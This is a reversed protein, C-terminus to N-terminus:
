NPQETGDFGFERTAKAKEIDKESAKYFQKYDAFYQTHGSTYTEIDEHSFYQTPNIKKM